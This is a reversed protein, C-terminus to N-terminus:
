REQPEGKLAKMRGPPRIETEWSGEVSASGFFVGAAERTHKRPKRGGSFGLGKQARRLILESRAGPSEQPKAGGLDEGSGTSFFLRERKEKGERGELGLAKRGGFGPVEPNETWFRDAKGGSLPATRSPTEWRRGPGVEKSFKGIRVIKEERVGL